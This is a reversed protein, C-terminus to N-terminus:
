QTPVGCARYLDCCCLSPTAYRDDYGCAVSLFVPFFVNFSRRTNPVVTEFRVTRVFSSLDLESSTVDSMSGEGCELAKAAMTLLVDL